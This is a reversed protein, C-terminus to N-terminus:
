FRVGVGIQVRQATIAVDGDIVDTKPLIRGYRYSGDVVFHRAIVAQAGFAVMVFTKNVADSLDIGLETRYPDGSLQSTVDTGNVTFSVQRTVKALGVGVGVYPRVMGGMPFRYKVGLDFFDAKQVASASGRLFTAIKQARADLDATDVNNMRGGEVFVEVADTLRVGVEGGASRASVHGFTSGVAVEAYVRGDGTSAAPTTQAQVAGAMLLGIGVMAVRAFSIM